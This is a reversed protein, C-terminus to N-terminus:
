KPLRFAVKYLGVLNGELQAGGASLTWLTLAPDGDFCDGGDDPDNPDNNWEADPHGGATVFVAVTSEPEGPFLTTDSRPTLNTVVHVMSATM